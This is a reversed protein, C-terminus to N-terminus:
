RGEVIERATREALYWVLLSRRGDETWLMDSRQFTAVLAEPSDYGYEEADEELAARIEGQYREYLEM